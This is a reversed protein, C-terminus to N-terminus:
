KIKFLEQHKYKKFLEYFLYKSTICFKYRENFKLCTLINNITNNAFYEFKM